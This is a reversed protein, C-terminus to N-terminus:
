ENYNTLRNKGYWYEELGKREFLEDIETLSKKGFNHLHLLRQRGFLCLQRYTEIKKDSCHEIAYQARFCLSSMDIPDDLLRECVEDDISKPRKCYYFSETVNFIEWGDNGLITMEIQEKGPNKDALLYEWKKM